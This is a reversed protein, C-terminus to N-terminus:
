GRTSVKMLSAFKKIVKHTWCIKVNMEKAIARLSMGQSHLSWVIKEKSSEFEHNHLFVCALEYYEQKKSFVDPNYKIQFYSSHWAKLLGNSNNEIDVFGMDELKRYWETQLTKLDDKKSGM